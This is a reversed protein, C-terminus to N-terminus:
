NENQCQKSEQGPSAIDYIEYYSTIKLDKLRKKTKTDIVKLNKSHLLYCSSKENNGVEEEFSDLRQPQKMSLLAKEVTRKSNNLLIVPSVNM